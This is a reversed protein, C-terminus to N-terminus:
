SGKNGKIGIMIGFRFGMWQAHLKNGNQDRLIEKATGTTHLPFGLTVQFGGYVGLLFIKWPIRVSYGHELGLGYSHAELPVSESENYISIYDLTHLRSYVFSAKFVAKIEVQKLITTITQKFLPGVEVMEIILDVGINGSYDRYDIRSGTSAYGIYGGFSAKENLGHSVQIHYNYYPPFSHLTEVPIRLSQYYSRTSTMLDKLERMHYTGMGIQTIVSINAKEAGQIPTLLTFLVIFVM